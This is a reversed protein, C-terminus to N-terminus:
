PVAFIDGLLLLYQTNNICLKVQKKPKTTIIWAVLTALAGSVVFTAIHLAISFTHSVTSLTQDVATTEIAKNFDSVMDAVASKKSNDASGSKRLYRSFDDPPLFAKSLPQYKIDSAEPSRFHGVDIVSTSSDHGSYGSSSGELLPLVGSDLSSFQLCRFAYDTICVDDININNDSYKITCPVNSVISVDMNIVREHAFCDIAYVLHEHFGLFLSTRLFSALSVHIYMCIHYVSM